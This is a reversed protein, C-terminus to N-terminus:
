RLQKVHATFSQAEIFVRKVEPHASKIKFEIESVYREVEIASLDNSFDLSINVLIDNPGLQMTLLENLTLDAFCRNILTRIGQVVEDSASEGVLLSKCEFALLAAVVALVVGIVISAAGDMWVLEFTQGLLIGVFAIVIGLMAASDELLVTFLVPDKSKRTAELYGLDGKVRKFECFAIWWACAEFIFATVLVIYNIFANTISTPKFLKHVGEFISVGAGVAFILIAVVFAWFYIERSYGFPHLKDAQRNSRHIGYLLLAQNCTDVLSHVGESMMASSGTYISASFKTIAILGNGLLAAIVIKKSGSASMEICSAM